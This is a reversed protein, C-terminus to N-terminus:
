NEKGYLKYMKKPLLIYYWIIFPLSIGISLIGVWVNQYYRTIFSEIFGAIIFMPVLGIAIKVATRAGRKFSEARTYTGPFMFSSGLLIGAGGAIVISSIEITGHIWVTLMATTFVGQQFLFTFFVGVMAGNQLLMILTRVSFMIGYAIIKFSVLVNNLTISLFMDAENERGYIGMPNGEKINELTTNVYYDGFFYRVFDPDKLTSIIGVLISIVFVALSLRMQKRAAYIALPIEKVWFQQIRGKKEKKNKYITQHAGVALQNLYEATKSKPYYTQAYALDDTIEIFLDALEDPHTHSSQNIKKEFEKWKKHNQKSFAAERM